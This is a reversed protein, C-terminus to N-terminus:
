DNPAIGPYGGPILRKQCKKQFTRTSKKFRWRKARQADNHPRQFRTTCLGQNYVHGCTHWSVHFKGKQFGIECLEVADEFTARQGPMDTETCRVVLRESAQQGLNRHVDAQDIPDVRVAAAVLSQRPERPGLRAHGHHKAHRGAGRVAHDIRPQFM